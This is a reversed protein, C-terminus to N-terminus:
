SKRVGDFSCIKAVETVSCLEFILFFSGLTLHYCGLSKYPKYLHEVTCLRTDKMKSTPCVEDFGDIKQGTIKKKKLPSKTLM